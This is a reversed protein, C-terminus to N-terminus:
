HPQQRHQQSDNSEPWGVGTRSGSDQEHQMSMSDHTDHEFVMPIMPIMSLLPCIQTMHPACGCEYARVWRGVWGQSDIFVNEPKLDRYVIANSHLYELALVISAIYFKALDESM